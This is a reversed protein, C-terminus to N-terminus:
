DGWVSINLRPHRRFNGGLLQTLQMRTAIGPHAGVNTPSPENRRVADQSQLAQFSACQLWPRTKAATPENQWYVIKLLKYM